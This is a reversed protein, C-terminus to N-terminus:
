VIAVPGAFRLNDATIWEATGLPNRPIEEYSPRLLTNAMDCDDKEKAPEREGAAGAEM